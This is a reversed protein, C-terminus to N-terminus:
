PRPSRPTRQGGPGGAGGGSGGCAARLEAAMNTHTDWIQANIFLQVFRVGREVLRRAILCRRGYSDTEPRGIGYAERVILPEQNIDLADTAAIQMRAALEYSSIRADLIGQGPRESKHLQDLWGM